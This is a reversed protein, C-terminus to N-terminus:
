GAATPRSRQVADGAVGDDVIARSRPMRPADLVVEDAAVEVSASSANKVPVAASTTGIRSTSSRTIPSGPGTVRLSWSVYKAAVPALDLRVLSPDLM